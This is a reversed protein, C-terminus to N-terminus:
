GRSTIGRGMSERRLPPRRKALPRHPSAQGIRTASVSYARWTSYGGETIWVEPALGFGAALERVSGVAEEWSRWGLANSDWTGPFGHIAIADAEDLVGREGIIRLWNLDLPCPGGLVTFVGRRRAWHAAAGVMTCFKVWDTDARWDWDLLNNPENWLEVARFCGDYRTLIEVFGAYADLDRPPGDARGTESLSPPVYHICPLLEVRAALRPILWDYWERGGEAHWDAWSLHTRLHGFGLARIRDLAPDVRAYDGLRFWEVVGHEALDAAGGPRLPATM